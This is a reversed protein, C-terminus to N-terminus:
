KDIQMTNDLDQLYRQRIDRITNSVLVHFVSRSIGFSASVNRKHTQDFESIIKYRTPGIMDRKEIDPRNGKGISYGIKTQTSPIDYFKNPSHSKEREFRNSGKFSHVSKSKSANLSHLIYEGKRYIGRKSASM